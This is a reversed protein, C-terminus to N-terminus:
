PPYAAFCSWTQSLSLIERSTHTANATAKVSQNSVVQAITLVDKIAIVPSCCQMIHMYVVHAQGSRIVSATQLDTRRRKRQVM